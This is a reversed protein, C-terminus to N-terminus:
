LNPKFIPLTSLDIKFNNCQKITKVPQLQDTKEYWIAYM